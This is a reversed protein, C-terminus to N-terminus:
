PHATCHIQDHIELRDSTRKQHYRGNRLQQKSMIDYKPNPNPILFLKERKTTVEGWHWMINVLIHHYQATYSKWNRSFKKPDLIEHGNMKMCIFSM